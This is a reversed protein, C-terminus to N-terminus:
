YDKTIGPYAVRVCPPELWFILKGTDSLTTAYTNKYEHFHCADDELLNPNSKFEVLEGNEISYVICGGDSFHYIKDSLVGNNRMDKKNLTAVQLNQDSVFLTKDGLSSLPTWSKEARNYRQICQKAGALTANEQADSGCYLITLEGDLAFVRPIRSSRFNRVFLRKVLLCEFKLEGDLINYNYTALQGCPSVIYLLGGLCVLSCSCRAFNPVTDFQKATWEKDGSRYTLLAIKGAHSADVLFFVCDPSDPQTSFTSHFLFRRPYDFKPLTIIKRTFPSFLLWYRRLWFFLRRQRMSILLWNHRVSPRIKMYSSSPIGLKALSIYHQSALNPSSSADYLQIDLRKTVPTLSPDLTLCWPLSKTTMIPDVPLWNKCVVRFRAQATLCLRSLIEGLLNADLESWSKIDVPEEEHEKKIKKEPKDRSCYYIFLPISVIFLGFLKLNETKLGSM